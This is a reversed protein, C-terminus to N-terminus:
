KSLKKKICINKILINIILHIIILLTNNNNTHKNTKNNKREAVKPVLFRLMQRTTRDTQDSLAGFGAFRM